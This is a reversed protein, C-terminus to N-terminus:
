IKKALLTLFLPFENRANNEMKAAKGYSIKDSCWEQLDLVAFGSKKLMDFYASLPRHFSWTQISKDKKSPEMEIPINLESLYRDIRRYQVKKSGDVQWSSQRPIRFCPHNLVIALLGGEKLHNSANLLAAEPKEMNQLSLILAACDFDKKELSLKQTLDKILFHHKPNKDHQKAYDVLTKAIDIGLYEISPPLQRALVGQGCGLDLLSKQNKLDLMKLLKPLIVQKHYYHGSEGVSKEYWSGVKQWSTNKSQPIKNQM